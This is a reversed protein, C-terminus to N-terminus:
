EDRFPDGYEAFDRAQKEDINAGHRRYRSEREIRSRAGRILTSRTIRLSPYARNFELVERMIEKSMGDNVFDGVLRERRDRAYGQAGKIATQSSYFQAVEDPAFGISQLFVEGISMDKADIVTDGANNVLGENYYRVSRIADRLIKPSIQEMGRVLDGDLIKAAGRTM